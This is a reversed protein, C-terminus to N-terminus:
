VIDNQDNIEDQPRYIGYTQLVSELVEKEMDPPIQLEDENEIDEAPAVLSVFIKGPNNEHSMNPFRLKNGEQYFYNNDPICNSEMGCSITSFGNPARFFGCTPDNHATVQKVGMGYPLDMVRVPLKSFHGRADTEIDVTKSVILSDPVEPFDQMKSEWFRNRVIFSIAQKVGLKLERTDIDADADRRGLIRRAQEAIRTVGSAM